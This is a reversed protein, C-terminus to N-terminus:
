VNHIYDDDHVNWGKLHNFTHNAVVHGSDLVQRAIDPNKRINDGVCFFTAKAEFRDLQELVWPTVDPQPGDDFTLFIEDQSPVSWILDKYLSRVLWPTKHIQMPM